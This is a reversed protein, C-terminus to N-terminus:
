KKEDNKEEKRADPGPPPATQPLFQLGSKEVAARFETLPGAVFADVALAVRAVVERARDLGALETGNPAEPTDTLAELSLQWDAFLGTAETFGQAPPKGFLREDVATRAKDVADVADRLAQNPDDGAKPKKEVALRQQVLAIDKRARALRQFARRLEGVMADHRALAAEKEQRAATPIEVRPDPLVTVKTKQESGQFRVTLEYDGPIVQRGHPPVDPEEVELERDPGPVADREFGWVIRNLGLKVPARFTRVLAGAADRVEVTVQDKPEEKKKDKAKAKTEEAQAAEEKAPKPKKSKREREVKDDPHALEEANVIAYVFVGRTRTEGRFVGQGPFREAPSQKLIWEAAPQAPFVHLKEQQMAPTLTRLPAIDDLVFLSRGHTAVVLDGDRPHVLLGMVSSTPVGHKWRQWSAGADISFWLGFETGLFLLEARV